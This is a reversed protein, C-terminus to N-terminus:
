PMLLDLNVTNEEFVALKREIELSKMQKMEIARRVVEKFSSDFRDPSVILVGEDYFERLTCHDFCFILKGLNFAQFFRNPECLRNNMSVAPDYFVLSADLKELHDEIEWHKFRGYEVIPVFSTKVGLEPGHCVIEVKSAFEATDLAAISELVFRGPRPGGVVAIRLRDDEVWKPVRIVGHTEYPINRVVAVKKTSSYEGLYDKARVLNAFCVGSFIKAFIFHTVRHYRFLKRHYHEHLDFVVTKRFLRLWLGLAFFEFNALIYVDGDRGENQLFRAAAFNCEFYKGLLRLPRLGISDSRCVYEESAFEFESIKKVVGFVKVTVGRNSLSTFLRSVRAETDLADTRVVYMTRPTSHDSM